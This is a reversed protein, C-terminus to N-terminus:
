WDDVVDVHFTVIVTPSVIPPVNVVSIYSDPKPDDFVPHFM